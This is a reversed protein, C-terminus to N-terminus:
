LLEVCYISETYIAEKPRLLRDIVEKLEPYNLYLEQRKIASYSDWYNYFEFIGINAAAGATYEEGSVKAGGERLAKSLRHLHADFGEGHIRQKNFKKITDICDRMLESHLIVRVVEAPTLMSYVDNESVLHELEGTDSISARELCQELPIFLQENDSLIFQHLALHHINSGYVDQSVMLSPMLLFYPGERDALRDFEDTTPPLPALQTALDLCFRNVRNFPSQTYCMISGRIRQWRQALIHRLDNELVLFSSTVLCNQIESLTFKNEFNALSATTTKIEEADLLTNITEIQNILDDILSTSFIRRM